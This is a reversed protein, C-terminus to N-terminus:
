QSTGDPGRPHKSNDFELLLRVAEDLLMRKAVRMPRSSEAQLQRAAWRIRCRCRPHAPPGNRFTRSYVDTTTGHLPACIPCVREDEATIWTGVLVHPSTSNTIIGAAETEATSIADTTETIAIAEARGEGFVADQWDNFNPDVVPAASPSPAPEVPLDRKPKAKYEIARRRTADAVEAAVRKAQATGLDSALRPDRRFEDLFPQYGPDEQMMMLLIFIIAQEYIKDFAEDLATELNSQLNILGRDVDAMTRAQRLPGFVTM